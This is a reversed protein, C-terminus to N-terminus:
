FKPSNTGQDTSAEADQIRAGRRKWHHLRQGQLSPYNTAQLSKCLGIYIELLLQRARSLEISRTIHGPSPPKLNGRDQGWGGRTRQEFVLHELVVGERVMFHSKEWSFVLWKRICVKLIKTLDALCSDFDYGFLSFDDMFVELSDRFFDSFIVTMCQQFTALANCLKFPMWRFAFTGFPCTFTMKEQDDLHISIQNYSSYGDLFRFYNQGALRDLIHDIFPLPFHDKKTASNLKQYDICVWWKTPLRTQIEEGKKNM